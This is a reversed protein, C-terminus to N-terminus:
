PQNKVGIPNEIGRFFEIHAEDLSRTREGIWLLHGSCNYFRDDLSSQRTLAEEYNLILAEHSTYFDTETLAPTNSSNIGCADIFALTKDIANVMEEYQKSIPVQSLFDLNWAHIQHLDAFGGKTFSRLLNLTAAAQHYCQLLRQPNPLRAEQTFQTANVMDGRYSPLSIGEQSETDSSRPKAFQGAMRGIKVIPKGGGFTLVVAMQLIVKLTDRISNANFSAFTEACDGGQLLFAEKDIISSLSKKLRNVEGAFVLPPYSSLQKEVAKLAEQDTYSPQQVIPFDRWSKLQWHKQNM